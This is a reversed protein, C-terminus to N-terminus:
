IDIQSMHVPTILKELQAGKLNAGRLNAGELNCGTLDCAELNAGAMDADYLTCNRMNASKLNAVRLSVGDMTSGELTAGKMNASELSCRTLDCGKLIAGQLDACSAMVSHLKAGELNAFRLEARELCCWSLNANSLNCHSLCAYKFNINRLDMKSLNIGALHVGQFRLETTHSSAVLTRIFDLRTLSVDAQQIDQILSVLGDLGYYRAEELVGQLNVHKDCVVRGHRLYDLIPRFYYGNRDILYAGHADQDSPKLQDQAFMRAIMSNPERNTLTLRTTTFIEGGVNLTVWSSREAAPTASSPAAPLNNATAETTSDVGNPEM